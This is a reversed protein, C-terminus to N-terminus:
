FYLASLFRRIKMHHMVSLGHIYGTATILSHREQKGAVTYSTYTFAYGTGETVVARCFEGITDAESPTCVVSKQKPTTM